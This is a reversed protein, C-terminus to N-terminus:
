LAELAEMVKRLITTVGEERRRAQLAPAGAFIMETIKQDTFFPLLNRSMTIQVLQNKRSLVLMMVRENSTSDPYYRSFLNSKYSPEKINLSDTSMLVVKGTRKHFGALMSDVRTAEEPSLYKELDLVYLQAHTQITIILFVPLIFKHM